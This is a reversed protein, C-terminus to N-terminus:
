ATKRTALLLGDGIDLIKRHSRRATDWSTLAKVKRQKGAEIYAMVALVHSCGCRGNNEAPRYKAWDCTCSAGNDLTTVTYQNGTTGSTVIYTRSDTQTIAHTRSKTTLPEPHRM